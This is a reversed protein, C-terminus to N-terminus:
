ILNFINAWLANQTAEKYGYQLEKECLSLQLSENSKVHM